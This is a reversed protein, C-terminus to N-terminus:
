VAYTRLFSTVLRSSVEYPKVIMGPISRGLRSMLKAYELVKTDYAIGLVPVRCKHAFMIAHYRVCIAAKLYNFLGLIVSPKLEQKIVYFRSKV